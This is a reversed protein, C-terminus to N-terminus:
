VTLPTPKFSTVTVVAQKTATTRDKAHWAALVCLNSEVKEQLVPVKHCLGPFHGHLSLCRAEATLNSSFSRLLTEVCGFAM